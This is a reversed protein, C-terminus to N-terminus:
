FPIDDEDFDGKDLASDVLKKLKNYCKKPDDTGSLECIMGVKKNSCDARDSILREYKIEKIRM